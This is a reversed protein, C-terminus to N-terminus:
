MSTCPVASPSNCGHFPRLSPWNSLPLSSPFPSLSLTIPLYPPPSLPLTVPLYPFLSVLLTILLILMLFRSNTTMRIRNSVYSQLLSNMWYSFNWLGIFQKIESLTWKWFVAWKILARTSCSTSKLVCTLSVPM